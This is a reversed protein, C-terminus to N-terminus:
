SKLSALIAFPNDKPPEDAVDAEDQHLPMCDDHAFSLPLALILEDELLDQVPLYRGDGGLEDYLVYEDDEVYPLQSDKLVIALRYEGSVDYHMAGLCRHCILPLRGVVEFGLWVIDNSDKQLRVSLSLRTQGDGGGVHELLRPLWALAIEGQWFFGVDAWKEFVINAPFSGYASANM